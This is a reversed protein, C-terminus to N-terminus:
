PHREQWRKELLEDWEAPLPVLFAQRSGDDLTVAVGVKRYLDFFEVTIEKVGYEPLPGWSM